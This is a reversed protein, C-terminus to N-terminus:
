SKSIKWLDDFFNSFSEAIAASEIHICTLENEYSFVFVNEDVVMIASPSFHDISRIKTHGLKKFFNWYDNNKDSSIIKADKGLEVRERHWNRWFNNYIENKSSRIGMIRIEKADKLADYVLTSVGRLNKLLSVTELDEEDKKLRMLSPIIKELETKDKKIDEAKEDLYILLTKPDNAIFRKVGNETVEKVLGKEKLKHLTEYIKGSSIGAEKIVEGSTAKGIKLLTLYVAAENQTLGCDYLIKEYM